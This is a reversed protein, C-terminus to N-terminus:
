SEINSQLIEDYEKELDERKDIPVLRLLKRIFLELRNMHKLQNETMGMRENDGM